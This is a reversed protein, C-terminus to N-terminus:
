QESRRRQTRAKLRDMGQERKEAMKKEQEASFATEGPEGHALYEAFSHITPYKFMKVVSTDQELSHELISNIKILDFSNGGLDFFNDHVGVEELDLVEKWAEAITREIDTSPAVYTAQSKLRFEKLKRLLRRDVKGNSNLPIRDLTVFYGPIMYHPLTESLHERLRIWGEGPGRPDRSFIEPNGPVVYACLYKGDTVTEDEKAMVVAEKILGSGVLHNEIEGLEVRFGRIKVQHDSRGLFEVDGDPLWRVLDGTKYMRGGPQFPDPMFREATLEERFLYGRAVSRGGIYLEGPVNVPQLTRCDGADPTMIYFKMNPLPRGIPVNGGDPLALLDGPGASEYYSTDIAAETVGYSNLIRMQKGFRSVLRKFDRVPCIDSGLILLRLGPVELRNEHVYDMFPIVYSPTSELLTIRHYVILRYFSEPELVYFPNILMKGGNLLARAMDGAFVDFSFGAMQLLNVEMEELRYEKQWGVAVNVLQDHQVMVAKPKGTSGSTYIVYALNEPGAAAPLADNETGGAAASEIDIKMGEYNATANNGLYGSTVLWRCKSDELMFAIRHDPYAPDVPLYAGGAKMVGMVGVILEVSRDLMIAVVTEPGVGGDQLVRALRGARRNLEGYSLYCMDLAGSSASNLRTGVVAARDPTGAVQEEFLQHFTKDRPYELSNSNFVDLLQEREEPTLIEIGELLADVDRPLTESIRAFHAAIRQISAANYRQPDYKIKADLSQGTRNFLFLVSYDIGDLYSEEQINQLLIVADFLPFEGPGAELELQRALIGIPYNQHEMAEQITQRVQLLLTKFTTDRSLTNRLALVTNIFDSFTEQRYISTGVIIDTNGTYKNLLTVLLATLVMHLRTDSNSSLKILQRFIEGTLTFEHLAPSTGDGRVTQRDYYFTTKEPDGSLKNLWYAKEKFNQNAAIILKEPNNENRM